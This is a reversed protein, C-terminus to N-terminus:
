PLEGFRHRGINTVSQLGYRWNPSAKNPNYFHTWSGNPQFKGNIMELAVRNASVWATGSKHEKPLVYAFQNAAKIVSPYNEVKGDARNHIVTAVARMGREGEGAAERMLTSAVLERTDRGYALAALALVIVSFITVRSM